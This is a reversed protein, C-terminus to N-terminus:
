STVGVINWVLKGSLEDAKTFDTVRVVVYAYRTKGAAITITNNSAGYLDNTTGSYLLSEYEPEVAADDDNLTTVDVYMMALSSSNPAVNDNAVAGDEGELIGPTDSTPNSYTRDTYNLTATFSIGGKNAFTFRLVYYPTSSSLKGADLGFDVNPASGDGGNVESGNFVYKGATGTNGAGLAKWTTSDTGDSKLFKSHIDVDVAVDTTNFTIVMDGSVTVQQAAWVAVVSMAAITLAILVATIIVVFKKNKTM